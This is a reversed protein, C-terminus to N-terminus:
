PIVRFLKSLDSTRPEDLEFSLMAENISSICIESFIPTFLTHHVDMFDRISPLSSLAIPSDHTGYIM